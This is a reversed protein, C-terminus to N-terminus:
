AYVIISDKSHDNTCKPLPGSKECNIFCKRNVEATTLRYVDETCNLIVFNPYTEETISMSFFDAM